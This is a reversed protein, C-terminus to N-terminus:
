PITVKLEGAWAASELYGDNKVRMNTYYYDGSPAYQSVNDTHVLRWHGSSTETFTRGSGGGWINGNPGYFMGSLWNVPVNSSVDVTLTIVTDSGSAAKSITVNDIVPLGAVVTNTVTVKLEGAWAASELYGANKVRMNTYYYDGSPAYQSVNDTHVLRWHGSSTETFTIGWGGGWINGNPGDFMGSLWNVPTNSSADITLTIVTDSGSAAKSITIKDIVPAEPDIVPPEAGTTNTVTVKLEGAWAASEMHKANAVRINTYYYDGSPASQSVNDTHVLRWHGPSTETFTRDSGGGWINGSPGDFSGGMWNVPVKSSVDVTLTIITDSGSATKSITAKDIVPKGVSILPGVNTMETKEKNDLIITGAIGTIEDANVNITLAEGNVTVNIKTEAGTTEASKVTGSYTLALSYKGNSYQEITLVFSDGNQTTYRASKNVNETIVLTYLNGASDQSVYTISQPDDAVGTTGDSCGILSFFLIVWVVITMIGFIKAKM